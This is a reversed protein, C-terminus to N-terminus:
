LGGDPRHDAWTGGFIGGIGCIPSGHPTWGGLNGRTRWDLWQAKWSYLGELGFM